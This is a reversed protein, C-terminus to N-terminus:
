ELVRWPRTERSKYISVMVRDLLEPEDAMAGLLPDANPADIPPPSDLMTVLRQRDDATMEALLSELHQWQIQTM